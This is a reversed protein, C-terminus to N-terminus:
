WCWCQWHWYLIWEWPPPVVLTKFSASVYKIGEPIIIRCKNQIFRCIGKLTLNVKTWSWSINTTFWVLPRSPSLTKKWLQSRLNQFVPFEANQLLLINSQCLSGCFHGHFIQWPKILVSHCVQPWHTMIYHIELESKVTFTLLLQAQTWLTYNHM